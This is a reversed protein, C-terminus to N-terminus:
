GVILAPSEAVTYFCCGAVTINKGRRSGLALGNPLAGAMAKNQILHPIPEMEAEAFAASGWDPEYAHRYSGEERFCVEVGFLGLHDSLRKIVSPGSQLPILSVGGPSRQNALRIISVAWRGPMSTCFSRSSAM